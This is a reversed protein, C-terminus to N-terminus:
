AHSVPKQGAANEDDTDMFGQRCSGAAEYSPRSTTAHIESYPVLLEEYM